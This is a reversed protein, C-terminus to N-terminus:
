TRSGITIVRTARRPIAGTTTTLRITPQPVCPVPERVLMAAGGDVEALSLAGATVDLLRGLGGIWGAAVRARGLVVLTGTRRGLVGALVADGRTTGARGGSAPTTETGTAPRGTSVECGSRTMPAPDGALQVDAATMAATAAPPIIVNLQPAAGTIIV